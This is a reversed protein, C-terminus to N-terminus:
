STLIKKGPMPNITSDAQHRPIRLLWLLNKREYADGTIQFMACIAASTNKPRRASSGCSATYVAHAETTPLPSCNRACSGTTRRSTGANFNSNLESLWFTRTMTVFKKGMKMLRPTVWSLANTSVQSALKRLLPATAASELACVSYRSGTLRNPSAIEAASSGDMDLAVPLSWSIASVSRLLIWDLVLRMANKTTGDATANRAKPSTTVPAM